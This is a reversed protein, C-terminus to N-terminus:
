QLTPWAFEINMKDKNQQFVENQAARVEDLGMRDLNELTEEYIERLEAESEALIMRPIQEEMYVDIEAAMASEDTGGFPGLNQFATDNYVYPGFYEWVAQGIEEGRTAPAPQYQQFTVSNRLLWLNENGIQATASIEPDNVMELYNDTWEVTDNENLTYTDGEFGFETVLMGEESYLFEWLPLITELYDTDTSIMSVLWGTLGSSVLQPEAGDQAHVPGVPVFVADNDAYYVDRLQQQYDAVNMMLAFISGSVIKESIQSRDSTFNELSLLGERYLQNAFQLQEWSKPDELPVGGFEGGRWNGQRDERPIGFMGAWVYTGPFGGNPTFYLPVVDLGNYQIDADRVKRLAEL